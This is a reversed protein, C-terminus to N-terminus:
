RVAASITELWRTWTNGETWTRVPGLDGGELRGRELAEATAVIDLPDILELWQGVHESAGAGTSLVIQASPKAALAAEFVVLNLGDRLPNVLLTDFLQYSALSRTPRDSLDLHIPEWGRHQWRENVEGVLTELQTVLRQYKPITARSPYAFLMARFAGIAKPQRRLLEDIAWVGRLLNKSPEIRDVRLITPLGLTLAGLQERERAVSEDDLSSLIATTDAPIPAVITRPLSPGRSGFSDVLNQAWRDAHLGIANAAAFSTTLEQRLSAPIVKSEGATCIPTHFFLVIPGTFGLDRLLQPVLMLHYDNVVITTNALDLRWVADAIQSNFVRYQEYAQFFDTNFIPEFSLDFLGHFLYWFYQNAIVEYATRHAGADVAAPLLGSQITAYSGSRAAALEGESSVPFLWRVEANGQHEMLGLLGSALGGGSRVLTQADAGLQVPGRNTVFLYRAIHPM